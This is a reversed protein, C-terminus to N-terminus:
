NQFITKIILFSFFLIFKLPRPIIIKINNDLEILACNSAM